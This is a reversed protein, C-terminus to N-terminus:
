RPRRRGTRPGPFRPQPLADRVIDSLAPHALITGRYIAITGQAMASVYTGGGGIAAIVDSANRSVSSGPPLATRVSQSASRANITASGSALGIAIPGDSTSFYEPGENFTGDDYVIAGRVSTAEIQQAHCHEFLLAGIATRARLRAFSSSAAVIRGFVVQAYATGSFGDLAITGRRVHAVLIGRYGRVSISGNTVRVIVLAANRPVTITTNGFGYAALADHPGPPLRPLEFNEVPLSAPGRPTSITIAWSNITTPIRPATQGSDFRKWSVRDQTVIRVASRPWTKVTLQGSELMVNVIPSATTPIDDARAIGGCVGLLLALALALLPMRVRFVSGGGRARVVDVSGGHVRAVSQVIALGLGTGPVSRSRSRDARYFREFIRPLDEDAIGPGTDRVEIWGTGDESGARVDVRGSETFKIANDVLNGIMQRILSADALVIASDSAQEFDLRLGKEHARPEAHRVVARAEEILSVPEKPIEDGRDAKALTLMGNIMEGVAASEHAITALSERRVREDGEAWRLLMQANANISTLPTKLEHSADSIFQRERTFSAELRALLDDFSQALRGIEDSRPWSLRRDLREFGIERMARSLENIPNIAQTALALSLLIVAAIAVILVLFVTKRAADVAHAVTALSQAVEIVANTTGGVRVYRAEVVAPAGRVTENQFVRPHAADVHIPPIRGSGLNASKVMPFGAPTDIEISTEPSSWYILNDSNLLVQLPPTNSAVDQLGLPAGVPNAVAVVDSMTSDARALAQAYIISGFRWVLISSTAALVVVLLAAYWAAIRWKLSDPRPKM